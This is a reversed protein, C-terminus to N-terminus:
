SMERVATATEYWDEDVLTGTVAHFRHCLQMKINGKCQLVRQKSHEAYAAFSARKCRYIIHPWGNNEFTFDCVIPVWSNLCRTVSFPISPSLHVNSYCHPWKQVVESRPQRKM